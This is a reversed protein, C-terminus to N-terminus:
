SLTHYDKNLSKRLYSLANSLHRSITREPIVLSKSIERNTMGKEKSLHYIKQSKFPLQQVLTDVREQLESFEIGEETSSDWDKSIAIVKAVYNRRVEKAKFYDIIKFRLARMLYNEISGTIVLEDKREWLGIFIEQVLSSASQVCNTKVYAINHMQQFYMRYVAEFGEPTNILKSQLKCEKKKKPLM